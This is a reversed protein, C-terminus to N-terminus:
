VNDSKLPKSLVPLPDLLLLLLLCWWWWLLLFLLLIFLWWLLLICWSIDPIVLYCIYKSDGNM